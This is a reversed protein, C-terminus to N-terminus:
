DMKSGFRNSSYERDVTIVANYASDIKKIEGQLETCLIEDKVPFDNTVAVDFILNSHTIGSVIRFDHMSIPSSYESSIQEIIGAVRARIENVHADKYQVPDMHIVMHIGKERRFDEEINDILDHSEMVNEEADVEVHVSVFYRNAGYSHIVLDHIGLVGDYERIRRIIQATFEKDPATGMLTGSAEKTLKIGLILIYISIVCGLVADTLPGTIKSLFMAAVVAGTACMDGISDAASARLAQSGIRRAIIHYYLAMGGKVAVTASMVVISVPSFAAGSGGTFLQEVSSRLLEIGLVCVIISIFLGCLYEARAHGYPHEKDAPRASLVYGVLVFVSSGADSLNNIADAVISMSSTLIGTTIKIIFLLINCVIGVIGAKRGAGLRAKSADQNM